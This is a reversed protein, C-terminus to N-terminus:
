SKALKAFRVLLQLLENSETHISSETENSKNEEDVTPESQVLKNTDSAIELEPLASLLCVIICFLLVNNGVGPGLVIKLPGKLLFGYLGFIGSILSGVASLVIFFLTAIGFGDRHELDPVQYRYETTTELHTTENYGTENYGIVSSDVDPDLYGYAPNKEVYKQIIIFAAIFSQAVAEVISEITGHEREFRQKRAMWGPESGPRKRERWIMGAIKSAQLQPWILLPL